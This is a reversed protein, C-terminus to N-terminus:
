TPAVFTQTTAGQLGMEAGMRKASAIRQNHLIGQCHDPCLYAVSPLCSDVFCWCTPDPAVGCVRLSDTLSIAVPWALFFVCSARTRAHAGVQDAPIRDEQVTMIDDAYSDSDDVDHGDGHGKGKKLAFGLIKESSEEDWFPSTAKMSSSVNAKGGALPGRGTGSSSCNSFPLM